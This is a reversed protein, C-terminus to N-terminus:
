DISIAKFTRSENIFNVNKGARPVRVVNFASVTINAQGKPLGAIAASDLSFPGYDGNVQRRYLPNDNLDSILYMVSDALLINNSTRITYLTDAKDLVDSAVIPSISPFDKTITEVVSPFGSGGLVSWSVNGFFVMPEENNMFNDLYYNNKTLFLEGGNLTVNQMKLRERSSNYFAARAGGKIDEEVLGGTNSFYYDNYVYLVADADEFEPHSALPKVVEIDIVVNETFTSSGDENEAYLKVSYTGSQAYRHSPAVMTSTTGDGFTWLFSDVGGATTNVFNVRGGDAIIAEFKAIPPREKNCSYIFISALVAILFFTNKSM